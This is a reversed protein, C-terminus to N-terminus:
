RVPCSGPLSIKATGLVSTTLDIHRLNRTEAALKSQGTICFIASPRQQRKAKNQKVM